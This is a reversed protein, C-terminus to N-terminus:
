QQVFVLANPVGRGPGRKYSGNYWVASSGGADINLATTVGLSAMVSGLDMITASQIVVVILHQGTLGLAARSIHATKQKDDLTNEDVSYAGNTVVTPKHNIGAYVSPASSWKSYYTALGTDSFTLFGDNEGLGDTGNIMKNVRPNKIKWFFNNVQGACSSYDVPCFYTGNIAAVVGNYRDAYGKVSMVPCSDACDDDAATDTIVKIKGPGLDFEMIDATFSGRDTTVTTRRYSSNATSSSTVPPPTATPKPKPTPTPTSAPKPSLTVTEPTTQESVVAIDTISDDLYGARTITVTYTGVLLKMEASGQDDATTTAIQDGTTALIGAGAGNQITFHLIGYKAAEAAAAAQASESISISTALLANQATTLTEADAFSGDNLKTLALAAAKEAATTDIGLAKAKTITKTLARYATAEKAYEQLVRLTMTQRRAAADEKGQAVQM